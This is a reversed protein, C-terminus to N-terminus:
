RFDRHARLQDKGRGGTGVPVHEVTADDTMTELTAEVDKTAFEGELHKGWLGEMASLEM